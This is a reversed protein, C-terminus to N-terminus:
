PHMIHEFRISHLAIRVEMAVRERGRVSRVISGLWEYNKVGTNKTPVHAHHGISARGHLGTRSLARLWLSDAFNKTSWTASPV